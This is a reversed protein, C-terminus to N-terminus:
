YWYDYEYGDDSDRGIAYVVGVAVYALTSVVCGIWAKSAQSSRASAKYSDTYAAIFEPSKGLLQTAPPTPQYIYAVVVGVLGGLCGVALWMTGNTTTRGAQAGAISGATFEDQQALIPMAFVLLSMVISVFAFYKRKLDVPKM